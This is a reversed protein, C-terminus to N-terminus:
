GARWSDGTAYDIEIGPQINYCFIHFCIDRGHDLVSYGEMEVGNAVLNSGDFIPTVRYLVLANPHDKIYNAVLNEYELMGVINLYRTGTILNKKNANEGALQYGILHCRNYLYKDKIVDDYRITHWGSPKVNGIRGRPETPMLDYSLCAMAPGCRGLYDLDSYYEYSSTVAKEEETFNPQNNNIICYPAGSYPPINDLSSAYSVDNGLGLSDNLLQPWGLEEGLRMGLLLLVFLLIAIVIQKTNTKSVRKKSM